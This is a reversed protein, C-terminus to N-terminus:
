RWRDCFEAINGAKRGENFERRRFHLAPWPGRSVNSSLGTAYREQLGAWLSDEAARIAPDTTDSLLHIAFHHARGTEALSAAMAALGAMVRKPDENHAPMVLAVRSRLSGAGPRVADVLRLSLPDRGSLQLAFGILSTWFPIVIWGFSVGFLSLILVELPTIGESGVIAVMLALGLGTTAVWASAIM